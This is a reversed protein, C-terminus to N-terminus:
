TAIFVLQQGDEFRYNHTLTLCMPRQNPSKPRNAGTGETFIRNLVNIVFQALKIFQIFSGQYNFSLFLLIIRQQQRWQTTCCQAIDFHSIM